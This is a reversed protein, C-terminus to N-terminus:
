FFFIELHEIARSFAVYGMKQVESLTDLKVNDFVVFVRHYQKGKASHITEVSIPLHHPSGHFPTKENIDTKITISIGRRKCSEEIQRQIKKTRCLIVREPEATKQLVTPDKETKVDTKPEHKVGNYKKFDQEVVTVVNDVLKNMDYRECAHLVVRDFGKASYICRKLLIEEFNETTNDEFGSYFHVIHQQSRYNRHLELMEENEFVVKELGNCYNFIAQNEDGLRVCYFNPVLAQINQIIKM